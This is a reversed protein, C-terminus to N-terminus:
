WYACGSSRSARAASEPRAANITATSPTVSGRFRPAMTRDAAANPACPTTTGSRRLAPIVADAQRVEAPVAARIRTARHM